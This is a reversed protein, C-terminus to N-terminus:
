QRSVSIGSERQQAEISERRSQIQEHNENRVAPFKNFNYRYFTIIEVKIIHSIQFDIQPEDESIVSVDCRTGM